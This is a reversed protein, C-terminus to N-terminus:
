QANCSSSNTDYEGLRARTSTLVVCSYEPEYADIMDQDEIRIHGTDYIGRSSISLNSATAKFDNEMEICHGANDCISNSGDVIIEINKKTSYAKARRKQVFGAVKQTDSTLQREIRWDTYSPVALSLIVGMVALVILVEILTFGSIERDM